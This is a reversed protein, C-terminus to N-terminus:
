GAATATAGPLEDMRAIRLERIAGTLAVSREGDPDCASLEARLWDEFRGAWEDMAARADDDRVDSSSDYVIEPGVGTDVVITPPAPGTRVGM